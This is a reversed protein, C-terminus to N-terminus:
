RNLSRAETREYKVASTSSWLVTRPKTHKRLAAMNEVAAKQLKASCTQQEWDTLICYNNWKSLCQPSIIGWQERPCFGSQAEHSNQLKELLCVVQSRKTPLHFIHDIQFCGLGHPNPTAAMIKQDTAPPILWQAASCDEGVRESPLFSPHISKSRTKVNRPPPSPILGLQAFRVTHCM